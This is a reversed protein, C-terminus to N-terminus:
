ERAHVEGLVTLREIGDALDAGAFVEEAARVGLGVELGGEVAGREGVVVADLLPLRLAGPVHGRAGVCEPLLLEGLVLRRRQVGRDILRQELVDRAALRGEGVRVDLRAAARTRRRAAGASEPGAAAGGR